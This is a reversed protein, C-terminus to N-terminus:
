LVRQTNDVSELPRTIAEIIRYVKNALIEVLKKKKTNASNPATSILTRKRSSQVCGQSENVNTADEGKNRNDRPLPQDDKSSPVDVIETEVIDEVDNATEWTARNSDAFADEVDALFFQLARSFITLISSLLALSCPTSNSALFGSHIWKWVRRLSSVQPSM